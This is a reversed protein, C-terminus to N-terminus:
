SAAFFRGPFSTGNGRHKFGVDATRSAGGSHKRFTRATVPIMQVAGGVWHAVEMAFPPEVRRYLRLGSVLGPPAHPPRHEFVFSIRRCEVQRRKLLRHYMCVWGLSISHHRRRGRDPIPDEEFPLCSTM